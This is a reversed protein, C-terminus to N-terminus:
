SQIMAKKTKRLWDESELLSTRFLPLFISDYLHPEVKRAISESWKRARKIAASSQDPSYGKSALELEKQAMMDIVEFEITM